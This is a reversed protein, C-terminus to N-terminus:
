ILKVGNKKIEEILKGKEEKKFYHIQVDKDFENMIKDKIQILNIKKESFVALDIDSNKSATKKAHSGFLYVEDIEYKEALRLFETLIIFLDFQPFNLKKKDKEIIELLATTEKTEFNLKITRKEKKIIKYFQLKKITRDLSLNNWNLLKLIEKRSYGSGPSYSTLALFKWTSKNNLINIIM